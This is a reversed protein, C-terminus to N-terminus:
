ESFVRLSEATHTACTFSEDLAGDHDIDHCLAAILLALQDIRTVCKNAETTMLTVHVCHLVHVVHWWNHYPNDRYHSCVRSVWIMFPREEIKFYDLVGADSFIDFVVKM